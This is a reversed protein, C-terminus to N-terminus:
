VYDNPPTLDGGVGPKDIRCSLFLKSKASPLFCRHADWCEAELSLRTLVGCLQMYGSLEVINQM